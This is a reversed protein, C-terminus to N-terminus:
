SLRARALITTADLAAIADILQVAFTGPGHSREAAIEGAIGLALLASTAAIVPDPEVAACAALLAGAACGVGTVKGMWLHGNAIQVVRTGFSVIDVVGTTIRVIGSGAAGFQEALATMERANGRVFVGPKQLVQRALDLRLPSLEVFVPDLVLPQRRSDLSDLVRPIALEREADPTGLNILIADASRAMDVVEAPHTAMSVRAGVALLLNATIPQAVTNILCQVRPSRDGIAALTAACRSALWTSDISTRHSM